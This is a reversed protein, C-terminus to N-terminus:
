AYNFSADKRWEDLLKVKRVRYKLNYIVAASHRTKFILSMRYLSHIDTISRPKQQACSSSHSLQYTTIYNCMFTLATPRTCSFDWQLLRHNYLQLRWDIPDWKNHNIGTNHKDLPRGQHGAPCKCVPPNYRTLASIHCLFTHSKSCLLTCM